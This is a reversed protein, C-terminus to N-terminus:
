GALSAIFKVTAQACEEPLAAALHYATSPLILLRSNPIRTQWSRVTEVAALTGRDSSIVLTPATIQPLLSTIDMTTVYRFIGEMVSQATKGMEKIWWERMAPSVEGLRAGM